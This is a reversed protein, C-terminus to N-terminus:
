KFIFFFIIVTLYAQLYMEIKDRNDANSILENLKLSEENIFDDLAAKKNNYNVIECERQIFEMMQENIADTITKPSQESDDM